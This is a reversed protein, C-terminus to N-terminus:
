CTSASHGSVDVTCGGECFYIASWDSLQCGTHTCAHLVILVCNSTKSLKNADTIFPELVKEFGYETSNDSCRKLHKPHINGLVYYFLDLCIYCLMFMQPMHVGITHQQGLKHVGRHAGIPNVVEVEDFYILYRMKVLYHTIKLCPVMVCM